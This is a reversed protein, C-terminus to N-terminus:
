RRSFYKSVEGLEAPSLFLPKGKRSCIATLRLSPIIKIIFGNLYDLLNIRKMTNDYFRLLCNMTGLNAVVTINQFGEGIELLARFFRYVVDDLSEAGQDLKITPNQIMKCIDASMSAKKKSMGGKVVDKPFSVENFAEDTNVQDPSTNFIRAVTKKNREAESAIWVCNYKGAFFKLSALNCDSIQVDSCSADETHVNDAASDKAHRLILCTIVNLHPYMRSMQASILPASPIPSQLMYRYCKLNHEVKLLNQWPFVSFDVKRFLGNIRSRKSKTFDGCSRSRHFRTLCNENNGLNKSCSQSTPMTGGAYSFRPSLPRGIDSDDDTLMSSMDIQSEYGGFTVCVQNTVIATEPSACRVACPDFNKTDFTNTELTCNVSAACALTLLFFLKRM